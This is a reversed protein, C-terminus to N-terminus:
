VVLFIPLRPFKGNVILARGLREPYHLQLINLVERALGIGPAAGRGKGQRFNILLALTEQGPPMLEIIREVMYVVHEVQRHSPDTNQRAPNMYHCPRGERDYGIIAQKGTTNEPSVHEASLVDVGFERRWVLSQMIRREAEVEDLRTARLYRLLCDRTMWMREDDTLPGSPVKSTASKVTVETFLRCRDILTALKPAEESTIERRPEVTTTPAARFPTKIKAPLPAKEMEPPTALGAPTTDIDATAM